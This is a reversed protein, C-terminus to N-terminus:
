CPRRILTGITLYGLIRARTPSVSVAIQKTGFGILSDRHTETSGDSPSIQSSMFFFVLEDPYTGPEKWHEQRRSRRSLITVNDVELWTVLPEVRGCCRARALQM